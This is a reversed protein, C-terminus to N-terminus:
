YGDLYGSVLRSLAISFRKVDNPNSLDFHEKKDVGFNDHAYNRDEYVLENSLMQHSNKPTLRGFNKSIITIIAQRENLDKYKIKVDGSDSGNDRYIVEVDICM